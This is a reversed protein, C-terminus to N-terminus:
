SKKILLYLLNLQLPITKSIRTHIFILKHVYCTKMELIFYYYFFFLEIVLLKNYRFFFSYKLICNELEVIFIMISM